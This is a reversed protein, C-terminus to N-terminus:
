RQVGAESRRSSSQIPESSHFDYFEGTDWDFSWRHHQVADSHHETVSLEIGRERSQSRAVQIQQWDTEDQGIVMFLAPDAKPALSRPNSLDLKTYIGSTISDATDVGHHDSSQELHLVIVDGEVSMSPMLAPGSPDYCHSITTIPLRRSEQEWGIPFEHQLDQIAHGVYTITQLAESVAELYQKGQRKIDAKTM